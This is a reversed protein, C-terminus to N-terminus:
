SDNRRERVKLRVDSVHKILYQVDNKDCDYKEAMDELWESFDEAIRIVEEINM